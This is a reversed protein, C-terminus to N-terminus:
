RMGSDCRWDVTTIKSPGVHVNFPGCRRIRGTKVRVTYDGAPVLVHFRGQDDTTFSVATGQGGEVAFTVGALPASDSIGERSPGPQAPSITITGEIGSSTENQASVLLMPLMLTVVLIPRLRFRYNITRNADHNASSGRNNMM